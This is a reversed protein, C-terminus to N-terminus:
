DWKSDWRKPLLDKLDEVVLLMDIIPKACLGSVSTSGVHELQLVKKGFKRVLFGM